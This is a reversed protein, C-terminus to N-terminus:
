SQFLHKIMNYRSFKKDGVKLNYKMDNSFTYFLSVLQIKRDFQTSTIFYQLDPDNLNYKNGSGLITLTTNKNLVQQPNTPNNTFLNPIGEM